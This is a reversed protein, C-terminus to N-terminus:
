EPSSTPQTSKSQLVPEIKWQHAPRFIGKELASSKVSFPYRSVPQDPFDAPDDASQLELFYEGGLLPLSEMEFNIIGKPATVPIAFAEAHTDTQYLCVGDDRIIRLTIAAKSPKSIDLTYPIQINMREGTTFLAKDKNSGNQIIVPEIKLLSEIKQGSTVPSAAAAIKKLEEEPLPTAEALVPPLYQYQRDHVFLGYYYPKGNMLNGDVCETGNFWYVPTGDDHHIPFRDTRRVVKTAMYDKLPPNKWSLHVSTDQPVAKLEMTQQLRTLDEAEVGEPLLGTQRIYREIARTAKDKCIMNGDILVVAEDCWREVAGMDHTVLIITKNQEKFKKMRDECKRVFAGDGVALVEDILLVDADVHTAVSFALRMYMGSSYTRVPSDIFDALEAFEVIEDFKDKIQQRSLGFISGNIFINERGTFDPHFGAGLELLAAVRGQVEIQGADPKLVGALIKLLTSKGSGNKGIIGMFQGKKVEFSINKLATLSNKVSTKRSAPRFLNAVASKLTGYEGRQYRRRYTKSVNEIRIANM